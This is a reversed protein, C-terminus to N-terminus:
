CCRDDPNERCYNPNGGMKSECEDYHTFHNRHPDEAAVSHADFNERTTPVPVAACGTFGEGPAETARGTNCHAFGEMGPAATARTCHAFEERVQQGGILGVPAGMAAGSSGGYGTFNEKVEEADTSETNNKNNYRNERGNESSELTKEPVTDSNLPVPEVPPLQVDKKCKAPGLNATEAEGFFSPNFWSIKDTISLSIFVATCRVIHCFLASRPIMKNSSNALCSLNSLSRAPLAISPPHKNALHTHVM